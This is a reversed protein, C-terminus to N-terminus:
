LLDIASRLNEPQLHAYIQTTSFDSHGLLEKVVYLSAGKCVLNSAFSHRLGHFNLKQNVDKCKRLIYKFRWSLNRRTYYDQLIFEGKRPLNDIVERVKRHMPIDRQLLSKTTHHQHNKISLKNIILDVDEWRINLLESIRCGTYFAIIYASKAIPNNEFEILKNFDIETIFIPHNRPLKKKKIKKAPNDQLLGWDVARNFASKLCVIFTNTSTNKGLARRRNVMRDIDNHDIESLLKNKIEVGLERFAYTFQKVYSESRNIRAFEMYKEVFEKYTVQPLNSHKPICPEMEQFAIMADKKTRKKTSITKLRGIADRYYIHYYQNRKVLYMYVEQNCDNPL